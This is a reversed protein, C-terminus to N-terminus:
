PLAGEIPLIEEYIKERIEASRFKKRHRYYHWLGCVMGLAFGIFHTRYSTRPEFAQAPMFIMLGVGLSRIWRQSINKQKSLLFYLVLWVGGMWYVIGSAGILSVDPDSSWLSILNTVGGWFFAGLPFLRWGFYGNLFFGLIFFLMINSALHGFDGHAFLTTWLRWVQHQNFINERSADMFQAIDGVNWLYVLAGLSLLCTWGVTALASVSKTPRTLWTSRVVEYSSYTLPPPLQQEM